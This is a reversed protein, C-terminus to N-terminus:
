GLECANGVEQNFWIHQLYENFSAGHCNASWRNLLRESKAGVYRDITDLRCYSCGDAEYTSGFVCEIREEPAESGKDANFRISVRVDTHNIKVDVEYRQYNGTHIYGSGYLLSVAMKKADKAYRQMARAFSDEFYQNNDERYSYQIM